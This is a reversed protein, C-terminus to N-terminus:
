YRHITLLLGPEIPVLKIFGNGMSMPLHLFGDILQGGAALAKDFLMRLGNAVPSSATDM